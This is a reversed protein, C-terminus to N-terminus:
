ADLPRDGFRKQSLSQQALRRLALLVPEVLVTGLAVYRVAAEPSDTPIGAIEAEAVTRMAEGYHDLAGDPLDFGAADLGRLADALAGLDACDDTDVHWGWRDLLDRAATTDVDDAVDPTVARHALALLATGTEPPDDIGHLLEQAAAVTLGAPGLLARILRLRRVHTDDYQARTASSLRGAPLLGSRLYFKITAVPVDAAESLQSILM